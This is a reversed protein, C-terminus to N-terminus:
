PTPIFSLSPHNPGLDYLFRHVMNRHWSTGLFWPVERCPKFGLLTTFLSTSKFPQEQELPFFPIHLDINSVQFGRNVRQPNAVWSSSQLHPNQFSHNIFSTSSSFVQLSPPSALCPLHPHWAHTCDCASEWHCGSRWPLRHSYVKSWCNVLRLALCSPRGAGALRGNAHTAWLHLSGPLVLERRRHTICSWYALALPLGRFIAWM